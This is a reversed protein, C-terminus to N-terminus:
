VRTGRGQEVFREGYVIREQSYVRRVRVVIIAAIISKIFDGPIFPWAGAALAKGWPRVQVVVHRLWLVGPIYSLLDGLIFMVLLLLVFEGRSRPRIRQAFLGTLFACLPWAWIFGATPGLFVGVGAHGAILPLGLVDLGIVILYTLAGFWPGLLAGTIVVIPTELTIPVPGIPIRVLSIVAFLAAFLASFVLGRIRV